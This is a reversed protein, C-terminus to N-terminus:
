IDTKPRSDLYKKLSENAQVADILGQFETGIKDKVQPVANALAQISNYVFLDAWSLKNGVFYREDTSYAKKLKGLYEVHKVLTEKLFKELEEAKKAEDKEFFVKTYFIENVDRQTDVVADIKASELNDSGALGTERALYRAISMSQPLQTGDAFELVPCQNLIMKPKYEPWQEFSFRIDEFSRDAAALVLRALEGRAQLNFYYYKLDANSM